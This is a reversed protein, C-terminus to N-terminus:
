FSVFGKKGHFNMKASIQAFLAWFSGSIPKKKNKSFKEGTIKEHFYDLIFVFITISIEGGYRDFNQM